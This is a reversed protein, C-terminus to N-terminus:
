AKFEDTGAGYKESPFVYHEPQRDHFHAAWMELVAFVRANLPITRGTRAAKTGTSAHFSARFERRDRFLGM